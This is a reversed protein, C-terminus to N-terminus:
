EIVTFSVLLSSHSLHTLVVVLMQLLGACGDGLGCVGTPVSGELVWVELALNLVVSAGVGTSDRALCTLVVALSAFARCRRPLM